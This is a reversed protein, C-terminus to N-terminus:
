AIRAILTMLIDGICHRAGAHQIASLL